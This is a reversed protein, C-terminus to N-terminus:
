RALGRQAVLFEAVKGLIGGGIQRGESIGAKCDRLAESFEHENHAVISGILLVDEPSVKKAMQGHLRCVTGHTEMWDRFPKRHM